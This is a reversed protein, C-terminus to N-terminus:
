DAFHEWGDEAATEATGETLEGVATLPLGPFAGRWQELLRELGAPPTVVLLEYDEGDGLAGAVDSGDSCPLRSEDIRYGCGSLRALRPLDKGLGDSLDMLARVGGHRVLWGAERVRPIFSLHKGKISGGLTGTVLVVDGPEGGGRTALNKKEVWGTGSVSIVASSGEPVSSTEGGCIEAGFQGACERMGRYLEEVYAVERGGQVCLTVLLKAPRGGMAAFDSVVRAIAKWGVQAAPAGPEYHVREVMCDTKLLQYRSADGVDVVACDDGPGVLTGPGRGLERTLRAVLADEGINRLIEM